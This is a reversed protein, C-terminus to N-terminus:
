KLSYELLTDNGISWEIRWQDAPANALNEPIEAYIVLRAQEMPLLMTDLTAGNNQECLIVAEYAYGDGFILKADLQMFLHMTNKSINKIEGDAILLTHSANAVTRMDTGDAASVGKAFWYRNLAIQAVEGLNQLITQVPHSVAPSQSLMAQELQSDMCGTGILGYFKQARAVAASAKEDFTTASSGVLFGHQILAEQATRAVKNENGPLLMGFPDSLSEQFLTNKVESAAYVPAFGYTAEWLSASLDWLAYDDMGAAQLLAYDAAIADLSANQIANRKPTTPSEILDMTFIQDGLLRVSVTEGELLLPILALADQTLPASIVEATERGFSIKGTTAAALDYRM